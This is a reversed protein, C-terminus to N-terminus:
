NQAIEIGAVEPEVEQAKKEDALAIVKEAFALKEKLEEIKANKETVEQELLEIASKIDAVEQRNIKDAEILQYDIVIGDDAVIKIEKENEM